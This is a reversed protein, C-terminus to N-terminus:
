DVAVNLRFSALASLRPRVPVLFTVLPLTIPPVDRTSAVRSMGARITITATAGMALGDPSMASVRSVAMQIPARPTQMVATLARTASTLTPVITLLKMTPQDRMVLMVPVHFRVLVISANRDLAVCKGTIASMLTSASPPM